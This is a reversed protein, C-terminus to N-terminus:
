QAAEAIALMREANDLMARSEDGLRQGEPRNKDWHARAEPLTFYRCGAILMPQDKATVHIFFQYGDSRQGCDIVGAGRLYAGRLYARSLDAGSLDAGRLDAGSLDAGRLDAGSLDAWRLYAGRLNAQRLYAGRLDDGSLYAGRLNAQRGGEGNLWTKHDALIKNLEDRNM